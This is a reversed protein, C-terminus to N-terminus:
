TASVWEDDTITGLSPFGIAARAIDAVQFANSLPLISFVVKEQEPKSLSDWAKLIPGEKGSPVTLALIGRISQVCISM